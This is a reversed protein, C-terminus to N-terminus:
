RVGVDGVNGVGLRGPGHGSHCTSWQSQVPESTPGVVPTCPRPVDSEVGTVHYICWHGRQGELLGRFGAIAM